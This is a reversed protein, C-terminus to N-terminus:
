RLMPSAFFTKKLPSRNREGTPTRSVIPSAQNPRSCSTSVKGLCEAHLTFRCVTCKNALKGFKMRKDCVQCKEAKIVTKQIFNHANFPKSPSSETPLLINREHASNARPRPDINETSSEESLEFAVASRSRRTRKRIQYNDNRPSAVNELINEHEATKGVSRSRKRNSSQRSELRSRSECLDQTDDFSFDDVDRVSVEPTYETHKLIGKPTTCPSYYPKDADSDLDGMSRLKNLKVEDVLQDDLVLQRLLSLQASLRDRETEVKRRLSLENDLMTRATSLKHELGVIEQSAKTLEIGLRQAELEACEWRRRNVVANEVFRLFQSDSGEQLVSSNRTLEDFKLVLSIEEDM